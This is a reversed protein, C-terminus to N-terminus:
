RADTESDLRRLSERIRAADAMLRAIHRAIEAQRRELETIRASADSTM